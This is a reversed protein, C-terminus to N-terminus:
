GGELLEIASRDKLYEALENEPNPMVLVDDPEVEDGFVWGTLARYKAGCVLFNIPTITPDVLLRFWAKTPEVFAVAKIAEPPITGLYAVNGLYETSDRWHHRFRDMRDRFWETRPGMGELEDVPMGTEQGRTAAELFDEDPALLEEDLADLDIELIAWREEDGTATFAFYLPYTTTLYIAEPNSDVTHEWNGNCGRVARPTLGEKLIKRAASESTGHFLRM